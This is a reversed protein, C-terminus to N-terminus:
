FKWRAYLIYEIEGSRLWFNAIFNRMFGGEAFSYLIQTQVLQFFFQNNFYQKMM